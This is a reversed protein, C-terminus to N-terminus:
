IQVRLSDIEYRRFQDFGICKNEGVYEFTLGEQSVFIPDQYNFRHHLTKKIKM